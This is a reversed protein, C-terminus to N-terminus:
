GMIKSVVVSIFLDDNFANCVSLEQVWNFKLNSFVFILYYFSSSLSVYVSVANVRFTSLVCFIWNRASTICHLNNLIRKWKNLSTIRQMVCPKKYKNLYSWQTKGMAVTSEPNLSRAHWSRLWPQMRNWGEEWGWITWSENTALIDEIGQKGYTVVQVDITIFTEFVSSFIKRCTEGAGSDIEEQPSQKRWATVM